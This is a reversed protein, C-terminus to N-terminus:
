YRCHLGKDNYVIDIKSLTGFGDEIDLTAFYEKSPRGGTSEGLVTCFDIDEEFGYKEIARKIWNKKYVAVGRFNGM